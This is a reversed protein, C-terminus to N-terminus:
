TWGSFTYYIAWTQEAPDHFCVMSSTDCLSPDKLCKHLSVPWLPPIVCKANERSPIRKYLPALFSLSNIHQSKRTGPLGRKQRCRCELVLWLIKISIERHPVHSTLPPVSPFTWTQFTDWGVVGVTWISTRQYIYKLLKNNNECKIHVSCVVKM